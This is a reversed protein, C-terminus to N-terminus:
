LFFQVTLDSGAQDSQMFHQNLVRCSKSTNPHESPLQDGEDDGVDVPRFLHARHIVQVANRRGTRIKYLHSNLQEVIQCPGHWCRALKPTRGRTVSPNFAYVKKNIDLPKYNIWQRTKYERGEAEAQLHKRAFAYATELRQELRELYEPVSVPELKGTPFQIDVPLRLERGLALLAPTCQTARHESARYYMAVLPVLEDWDQDRELIKSLGDIM